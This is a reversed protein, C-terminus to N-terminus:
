AHGLRNRSCGLRLAYFEISAAVDKVPLVPKVAQLRAEMM